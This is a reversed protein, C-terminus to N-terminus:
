KAAERFHSWRHQDYINQSNQTEGSAILIPAVLESNDYVGWEDALSQYLAFFNRIGNRYRRRVTAEPIDHGGAQVRNRVRELALEPSKLWVFLLNVNYGNKRLDTLWRAYYRTALTTEFAFNASKEALDHLRALM